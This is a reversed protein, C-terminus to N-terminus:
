LVAVPIMKLVPLAFVSLGIMLHIALATVRTERVHLVRERSDGNRSVVSEITALSHVHNLSRVTAAVLWPIGFMSCGAILVGM